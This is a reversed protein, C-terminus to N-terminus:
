DRPSLVGLQILRAEILLATKEDWAMRARRPLGIAPRISSPHDYAILEWGQAQAIADDNTVDGRNEAFGFLMADRLVRGSSNLESAWAQWERAWEDRLTLAPRAVAGGLDELEFSFPRGSREAELVANFLDQIEQNWRPPTEGKAIAHIVRIAWIAL